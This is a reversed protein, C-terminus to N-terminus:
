RPGASPPGALLEARVLERVSTMNVLTGPCNKGVTPGGHEATERHGIVKAPDLGYQRCWAACQRVLTGTQAANFPEHDGHGSCCIGLSFANFGTAHAGMKADPRGAKMQGDQEIYRHYGIDRWANGGTGAILKGQADHQAKPLMHFARVIEVSQHVVVKRKKDFAGCTHVVIWKITRM